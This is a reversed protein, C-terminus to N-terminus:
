VSQGDLLLETPPMANGKARNCGTCLVRLNEANTRGAPYPIMHDFNARDPHDDPLGDRVARGCDQCTSSDRELVRGRLEGTAYRESSPMAKRWQNACGRVLCGDPSAGHACRNPDNLLTDWAFVRADQGVNALDDRYRGLQDRDLAVSRDRGNWYKAVMRSRANSVAEKLLDLVVARDGVFRLRSIRGEDDMAAWDHSTCFDILPVQELDRSM